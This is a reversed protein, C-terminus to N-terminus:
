FHLDQHAMEDLLDANNAYTNPKTRRALFTLYLLWVSIDIDETWIFKLGIYAIRIRFHRNQIRYSSSDSLMNSQDVTNDLRYIYRYLYVSLYIM